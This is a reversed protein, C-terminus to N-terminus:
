RAVADGSVDAERPGHKVVPEGFLRSQLVNIEAKDLGFLAPVFPYHPARFPRYRGSMPTTRGRAM